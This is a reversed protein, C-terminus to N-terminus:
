RSSRGATRPSVFTADSTRAIRSSPGGVSSSSAPSQMWPPISYAREPRGSASGMIAAIFRMPYSAIATPLWSNSKPSESSSRARCVAVNGHSEALMTRVSPLGAKSAVHIPV